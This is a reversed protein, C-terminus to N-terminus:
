KRSNASEVLLITQNPELALPEAAPAFPAIDGTMPDWREWPGAAKLTAKGKYRQDTTNAILVITRGQRSFRAALITSTPPDLDIIPGIQRVHDRIVRGGSAAFRNVTKATNPPLECSEPLVLASFNKGAIVLRDGNVKAEALHSHDAVIFPVRARTLSEGLQMYAKEARQARPSQSDIMLGEAQPKFETWLDYIPYYLIAEPEISADRLVANMRGIFDNYKNYDGPQRDQARYYLTFETVGFVAHWAATACMMDVTAPPKGGMRESFDSVETMVQRTGNLVAASMPGVGALWGRKDFVSSPESSLMDLGPVDFRQYCQLANGYLPPHNVIHEERLLHGSSRLKHQHCWEQLRGFYREAMLDGILSWYQRRIRRDNESDGDFLSARSEIISEGYKEQYAEPLDDVWPVSPLAKVDDSPEHVVPVNKRAHEPIQGINVSMLSPEDTFFAVVAQGFHDGVRKHYQNHTIDIFSAVADRDILNPFRRAVYYNNSAHTHEYAPRTYIPPDHDPDYVLSLAEHSPDQELVLGGASGSPYGDEDYLWVVLGVEAARAVVDELTKWKEESRMYEKFDVNCVLGGLGLERWKRLAEVTANEPSLGHVIQLPRLEVPPDNWADRMPDAALLTSAGAILFVSIASTLQKARQQRVNMNM